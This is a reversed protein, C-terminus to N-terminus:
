EVKLWCTFCKSDTAGISILNEKLKLLHHVNTLIRVIEDHMRIQISGIGVTRCPANNGMLINGGFKPTSEHNFCSSDLVCQEYHHQQHDVVSFVLDNKSLSYLLIKRSKRPIIKRGIVLNKSTIVYIKQIL